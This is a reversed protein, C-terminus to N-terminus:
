LTYQYGYQSAIKKRPMKKVKVKMAIDQTPRDREDRPQAAITDIVELGRIIEGYVTYSGDLHPTGGLTKYIQKQADTFPRGARQQMYELDEDTLVKGQTIYFQCSSSAKEPNNDRAAAIVGKKHFLRDNIEAPIRYGLDGNGLPEGPKAKKSNPDGGQIMFEGIVRHFLTGNYFGKKALKVFNAKHKPTADFLVAQMDGYDTSITVLYDKGKLESQAFSTNAAILLLIASLIKKM